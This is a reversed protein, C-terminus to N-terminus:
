WDIAVTRNEIAAIQKGVDRLQKLNLFYLEKETGTAPREEWLSELSSMLELLDLKKSVLHRKKPTWQKKM